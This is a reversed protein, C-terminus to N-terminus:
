VWNTEDERKIHINWLSLCLKRGLCFSYIPSQGRHHSPQAYFWARSGQYHKTGGHLAPHQNRSFFSERVAPKHAAGSWSVFREWPCSHQHKSWLSVLLFPKGQWKFEHCKGLAHSLVRLALMDWLLTYSSFKVVEQLAFSDLFLLCGWLTFFQLLFHLHHWWHAFKRWFHWCFNSFMLHCWGQFCAEYKPCKGKGVKGWLLLNNFCGSSGCGEDANRLEKSYHNLLQTQAKSIAM